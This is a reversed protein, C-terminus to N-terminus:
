YLKDDVASRTSVRGIWEGLDKPSGVKTFMQAAKDYNAQGLHSFATALDLKSQIQEREATKKKSPAASAAPAPAGTSSDAAGANASSADLAADAKFVYTTINAYNRQEILLQVVFLTPHALDRIPYVACRWSPCACTLCM